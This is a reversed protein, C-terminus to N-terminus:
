KRRKSTDRDGPQGKPDARPKDVKTANKPEKVKTDPKIVALNYMLGSAILFGLCDMVMKPYYGNTNDLEQEKKFNQGKDYITTLVDQHKMQITLQAYGFLGSKKQVEEAYSFREFKYIFLHAQKPDGENQLTANTNWNQIALDIESTIIAGAQAITLKGDNPKRYARGNIDVIGM